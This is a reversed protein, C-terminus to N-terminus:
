PVRQDLQDPCWSAKFPTDFNGDGFALQVDGSLHDAAVVVNNVAGNGASVLRYGSAKAHAAGTGETDSEPRSKAACGAVAFLVFSLFLTTTTPLKM